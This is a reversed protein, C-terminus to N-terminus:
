VFGGVKKVWELELKLRGIPEFLVAQKAESKKLSVPKGSGAFVTAVREVM